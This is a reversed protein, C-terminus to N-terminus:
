KVLTMRRTEVKGGMKLRSIYVGSSVPIGYQDCGNWVVSHMGAEMRKNVMECVKQGTMNFIVLEAFGAAPLSFQITTSPNFPNPYNGVLSFAHPQPTEASFTELGSPQFDDIFITTRRTAYGNKVMVINESRTYCFQRGTPSWSGMEATELGKIMIFYSIRNRLNLARLLTNRGQQPMGSGTCLVWEGDPSIEPGWWSGDWTLREPTGGTLPLRYLDYLNAGSEDVFIIFAGDPTLCPSIGKKSVIRQRGTTVELVGIGQSDSEVYVFYRGDRSWAGDTANEALVRLKGTELNLSEIVPVPSLTESVAAKAAGAATNDPIYNVFALERGDPSFCLTRALGKSTVAGSPVNRTNDCLLVPKGGNIPVAWIGRGGSGTFAIHKGTPSWVPSEQGRELGEGLVDSTQDPIDIELPGSKAIVPEDKGPVAAHFGLFEPQFRRATSAARASDPAAPAVISPSLTEVASNGLATTVPVRGPDTNGSSESPSGSIAPPTESPVSVSYGADPELGAPSTEADTREPAPHPTRPIKKEVPTTAPISKRSQHQIAAIGALTVFLRGKEMLEAAKKEQAFPKGRFGVLGSLFTICLCLSSVFVLLRSGVQLTIVRSTDLIREV